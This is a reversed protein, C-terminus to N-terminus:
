ITSSKPSTLNYWLWREAFVVYTVRVVVVWECVKSDITIVCLERILEFASHVIQQNFDEVRELVEGLGGNVREVVDCM